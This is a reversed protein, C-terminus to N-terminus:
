SLFDSLQPGSFNSIFQQYPFGSGASPARPAGLLRPSGNTVLHPLSLWCEGSLQARPSRTLCWSFSFSVISIAMLTPDIYQLRQETELERECVFTVFLTLSINKLSTKARGKDNLQSEKQMFM